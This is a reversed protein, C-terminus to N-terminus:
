TRQGQNQTRKAPWFAFSLTQTYSHNQQQQQTEQQQQQIDTQQKESNRLVSQCVSLCVFVRSKNMFSFLLEPFRKLKVLYHQQREKKKRCIGYKLGQKFDNLALIICSECAQSGTFNLIIIICQITFRLM